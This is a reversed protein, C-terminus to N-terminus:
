VPWSASVREFKWIIIKKNGLSSEAGNSLIRSSLSTFSFVLTRHKASGFVMKVLYFGHAGALAMHVYSITRFDSSPMGVGHSALAFMLYWDTVNWYFLAFGMNYAFTTLHVLLIIFWWLSFGSANMTVFVQTSASLQSMPDAMVDRKAEIRM